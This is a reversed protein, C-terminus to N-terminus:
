DIRFPSGSTGEGSLYKVNSNLYFAPFIQLILYNAKHAILSGSMLISSQPGDFDVGFVKDNENYVPTITHSSAYYSPYIWNMDNFYGYDINNLNTQWMKPSAAYSYDSIYMLGIKAKYDVKENINNGLEYDYVVKPINQIQEETIGGVQWVMDSIKNVWEEGLDNLYTGNLINRNLTSESWNNSGNEDWLGSSTRMGLLKVNNDFVGIIQYLNDESCVEDDSGFCVYNNVESYGGSYRYSGDNLGNELNGDHYYLHEDKGYLSKIYNALTIINDKEEKQILM